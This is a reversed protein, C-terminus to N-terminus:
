LESKPGKTNAHEDISAQYQQPWFKFFYSDFGNSFYIQIFFLHVMLKSRANLLKLLTSGKLLTRIAKVLGDENILFYQIYGLYTWFM